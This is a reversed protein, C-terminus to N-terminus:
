EGRRPDYRDRIGDGLINASLVAIGILLGPFFSIWFADRVLYRAESLMNGWSPAPPPPGVGLFSLTAEDLIAYGFIFTAQVILEPAANPLIHWGIVRARPAGLANAAEVYPMERILLAKGRVVRAVRPTYVVVLALVVNAESPERVAMLAIALIVAPLALFADSIRMLIEDLARVSGAVLGLLSGAVMTLAMTLTAVRLSQQGGAIVRALVERGFQDTGLPHAMSPPKLREGGAVLTPSVTYLYPGMVILAILLVLGVLAVDAVAGLGRRRRTAGEAM